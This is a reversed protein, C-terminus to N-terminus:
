GFWDLGTRKEMMINETVSATKLCRSLVQIFEELAPDDENKIKRSVDRRDAPDQCAEVNAVLIVCQVM